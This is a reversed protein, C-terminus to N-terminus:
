KGQKWQHLSEHTPIRLSCPMGTICQACNDSIKLDGTYEETIKHIQHKCAQRDIDDLKLAGVPCKKVCEGCSGDAFYLCYEEQIRGTPITEADIVVSGLRGTCGSKTIIQRNVGFKGVGCAVAIPKQLWPHYPPELKFPIHGETNDSCRIGKEALSEKLDDIISEMLDKQMRKVHAYEISPGCLNNSKVTEVSVPVFFSVVSKAGSLMDEPLFHTPSIGRRLNDFVPDDATTFGVIPERYGFGNDHKIVLREIEATIFENPNEM